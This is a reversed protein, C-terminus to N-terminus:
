AGEGVRDVSFRAPQTAPDFTEDIVIHGQLDVVGVGLLDGLGQGDLEVTIGTAMDSLVYHDGQGEVTGSLRLHIAVPTYGADTIAAVIAALDVPAEPALALTVQHAHIDTFVGRSFQETDLFPLKSVKKEIGYACFSCVVGHVEVIAQGPQVVVPTAQGEAEDSVEAAHEQAHGAHDALVLQTNSWVTGIMVIGIFVIRITTRM